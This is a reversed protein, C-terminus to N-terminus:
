RDTCTNMLDMDPASNSWVMVNLACKHARKEVPISPPNGCSYLFAGKFLVTSADIIRSNLLM